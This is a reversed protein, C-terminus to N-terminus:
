EEEDTEKVEEIPRILNSLEAIGGRVSILAARRETLAKELQGVENILQGEHARLTEIRSEIEKKM